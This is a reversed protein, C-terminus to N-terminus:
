GPVKWIIWTVASAVLSATLVYEPVSAILIPLSDICTPTDSTTVAAGTGDGVGVGVCFGTGFCAGGGCLDGGARGGIGCGLGVGVGIGVGVGVLGTFLDCEHPPIEM